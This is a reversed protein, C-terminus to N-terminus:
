DEYKRILYGKNGLKYIQNRFVDMNLVIMDEQYGFKYELIYKFTTEDVGLITDVKKIYHISSFVLDEDFDDEDDFVVIHFEAHPKITKLFNLFPISFIKSPEKVIATSPFEYLVQMISYDGAPKFVYRRFDSEGFWVFAYDNSDNTIIYEHSRITSKQSLSFFQDYDIIAGDGVPYKWYTIEASEGKTLYLDKNQANCNLAFGCSLLILSLKLMRKM